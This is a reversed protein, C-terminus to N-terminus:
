AIASTTHLQSTSQLHKAVKSEYLCDHIIHFQKTVTDMGTTIWTPHYPSSSMDNNHGWCMHSQSWRPKGLDQPLHHLIKNYRYREESKNLHIWPSLTAEEARHWSRVQSHSHQQARSNTNRQRELSQRCLGNDQEMGTRVVWSANVGGPVLPLLQCVDALSVVEEDEKVHSVLTLIITRNCYLMEWINEEGLGGWETNSKWSWSKQQKDGSRKTLQIQGMMLFVQSLLFTWPFILILLIIIIYNEHKLCDERGRAQPTSATPCTLADNSPSERWEKFCPSELSTNGHMDGLGRAVSMLIVRQKYNFTSRQSLSAHM